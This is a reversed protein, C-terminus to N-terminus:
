NRFQSNLHVATTLSNNYLLPIILCKSNTRNLHHNYHNYLASLLHLLYVAVTISRSRGILSWSLATGDTQPLLESALLLQQSCKSNGCPM